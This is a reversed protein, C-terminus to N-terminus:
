PAENGPDKDLAAALSACSRPDGFSIGMGLARGRADEASNSWVVSAPIEYIRGPSSPLSFRVALKARPPLPEETAIFMGGAGLTTATATASGELSSYEVEVRVTRRRYRRQASPRLPSM